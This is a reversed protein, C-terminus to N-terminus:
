KLKQFQREKQWDNISGVMVVIFIAITIAVGEVWEVHPETCLNNPCRTSEYTKPETGVTTYIGLALSIVAAVSM